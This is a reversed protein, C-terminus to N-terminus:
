ILVDSHIDNYLGYYIEYRYIFNECMKKIYPISYFDITEITHIESLIYKIENEGVKTSKEKCSNLIKEYEIKKNENGIESYLIDKLFTKIEYYLPSLINITHPM